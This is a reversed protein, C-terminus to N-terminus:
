LFRISQGLTPNFILTKTHLPIRNWPKQTVYRLAAKIHHWKGKHKVELVGAVFRLHKNENSDFFSVLFVEENRLDALTRAYGEAEMFNKDYVVALKGEPLRKNTLLPLFVNEILRQYGGKEQSEELLPMSKQGSPCSNTELLVMKRAGSATTVYFLDAGAWRLFEPKFEILEALVKKQVQPNLHCYRDLLAEKPMNFFYTILPHIQANLVKTYYHDEPEFNGPQIITVIDDTM